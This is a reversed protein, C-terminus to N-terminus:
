KVPKLTFSRSVPTRLAAIAREKEEILPDFQPIEVANNGQEHKRFLFLYTENQPRHRHFFLVNKDYALDRIKDARERDAAIDVAIGRVWQEHDGVALEQGDVSLAHKGPALGTVAVTTTDGPLRIRRAARALEGAGTAVRNDYATPHPLVRPAFEFSVGGDKKSLNAVKGGRADATMRAVDLDLRGPTADVGLRAALRPATVAYGIETLHQGNDTLRLPRRGDANAVDPPNELLDRIDIFAIGRRQAVERMAESYQRVNENYATPSPLPAPAAERAIPSLLVLRAKTEGLSDLLRNLGAVYNSLGATGAHAENGGYQVLIMTPKAIKVDNLLRTFGDNPGGFVARAEGWVTDGSWGLNRFTINRDPLASILETELYGYTQLREIFAGGLLVVRDGDRWEVATPSSVAPTPQATQANAVKAFDAIALGLLLAVAAAPQRLRALRSFRDVGTLNAM